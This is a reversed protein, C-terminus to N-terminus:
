MENQRLMVRSNKAIDILYSPRDKVSGYPSSDGAEKKKRTKFLFLFPFFVDHSPSHANLTKDLIKQKTKDFRIFHHLLNRRLRINEPQCKM